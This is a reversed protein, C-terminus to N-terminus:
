GFCLALTTRQRLWLSWSRDRLCGDRKVWDGDVSVACIGLIVAMELGSPSDIETNCWRHFSVV